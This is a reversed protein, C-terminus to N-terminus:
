ISCYRCPVDIKKTHINSMDLYDLATEADAILYVLNEEGNESAGLYPGSWKKRHDL